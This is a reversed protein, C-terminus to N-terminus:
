LIWCNWDYIHRLVGKVSAVSISILKQTMFHTLVETSSRLGCLKSIKLIEIFKKGNYVDPKYNLLLIKVLILFTYLYAASDPFSNDLWYTSNKFDGFIKIQSFEKWRQKFKLSQFNFKHQLTQSIHLKDCSIQFFANFKLIFFYKFLTEGNDCFWDIETALIHHFCSTKNNQSNKQKCLQDM